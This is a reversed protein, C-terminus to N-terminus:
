AIAEARKQNILNLLGVTAKADDLARHHNKLEIDFHRSLSGLGYSKLGKYYRRMGVVTCLKPFKFRQEM